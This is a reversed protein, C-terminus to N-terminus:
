KLTISNNLVSTSYLFLVDQDTFAIYNGVSIGPLYRIDVLTTKAYGEALLPVMSRSFSDGFVVLEKQSLANLNEITVLSVNGGLFLEYPDRGSAKSLDYMPIERGNEHDYVRCQDLISNSCYTINDPVVPLGSQGYYVGYFPEEIQTKTYDGSLPTQMEQAIKKAIDVIEEQKWHTDTKYFDSLQIDEAIPISRAFSTEKEVTDIFQEYDMSLHEDEALVYNKDPIVCIYPKVETGAFFNKEIQSFVSAARKISSEDMPYEMQALYGDKYYIGNNDKNQLIGTSFMAKVSRFADRFPFQDTVYKETGTMFNGNQISSWSLEPKQTLKRRETISFDSDPKCVALLVLIGYAIALTCVTIKVQKM